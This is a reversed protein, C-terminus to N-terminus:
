LRRRKKKRCGNHAVAVLDFVFTINIGASKLARVAAKVLYPKAIKVFLRIAIIRYARIVLVLQRIALEVIHPAFRKKRDLAFFKASISSVVSGTIDTLTLFLNRRKKSIHLAAVRKDAFPGFYLNNTSLDVSFNDKKVDLIM